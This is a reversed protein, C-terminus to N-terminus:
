KGEALMDNIQQGGAKVVKFTLTMTKMSHDTHGSQCERGCIDLSRVNTGILVSSGSNRDTGDVQEVGKSADSSAAGTVRYVNGKSLVIFSGAARSVGADRQLSLTAFGSSFTSKAPDVKWIGALSSAAFGAQPLAAALILATLTSLVARRAATAFISFTM